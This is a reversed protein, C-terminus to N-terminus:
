GKGGVYNAYRDRIGQWEVEQVELCRSAGKALSFGQSTSPLPNVDFEREPRTVRGSTKGADWRIDRVAALRFWRTATNEGRRALIM